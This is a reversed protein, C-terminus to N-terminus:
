EAHAILIGDFLIQGTPKYKITIKVQSNPNINQHDLTTSNGSITLITGQLTIDCGNNQHRVTVPHGNEPLITITLDDGHEHLVGADAGAVTFTLTWNNGDTLLEGNALQIDLPKKPPNFGGLFGMVIAAIVITAAVMLIVGIVPSVAKRCRLM